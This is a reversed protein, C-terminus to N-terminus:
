NNINYIRRALHTDGIMSLETIEKGNDSYQISVEISSDLYNM